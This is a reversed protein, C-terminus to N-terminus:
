IAAAARLGSSRRQLGVDCAYDSVITLGYGRLNCVIALGLAMNGSSSEVVLSQSKIWGAEQAGRLCFEAPYIKMFPFAAAYLNHSLPILRPQYSSLIATQTKEIM